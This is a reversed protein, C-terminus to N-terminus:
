PHANKLCLFALHQKLASFIAANFVKYQTRAAIKNGGVQILHQEKLCFFLLAFYIIYNFYFVTHIQILSLCFYNIIDLSVGLKLLSFKVCLIKYLLYDM